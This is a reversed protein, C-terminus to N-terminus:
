VVEAEFALYSTTYQWHSSISCHERVILGRAQVQKSEFDAENIGYNGILSDILVLIQGAYSPDALMEQYDFM